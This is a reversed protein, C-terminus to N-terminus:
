RARLLEVVSAGMRSRVFAAVSDYESPSLALRRCLEKRVDATLTKRAEALWRAITARGVEYLNALRELSVGDVLHLSLLARDRETLGDLAIQLAVGLERKCQAKAYECDPQEPSSPGHQSADLAEHPAKAARRCNLAVRAAATRIWTALSSRGQYQALKPARREVGILLKERLVQIVEDVFDPDRGVRAIVPRAVSRLLADFAAVAATLGRLCACALYLDAAHEDKAFVEREVLYREYDAAAVSFNPWSVGAVDLHHQVRTFTAKPGEANTTTQM